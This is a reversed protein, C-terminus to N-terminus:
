EDGREIEEASDKSIAPTGKKYKTCGVMMEPKYCRHQDVLCKYEGWHEDFVANACTTCNEM